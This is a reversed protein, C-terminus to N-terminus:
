KVPAEGQQLVDLIELSLLLSANGIAAALLTSFELLM